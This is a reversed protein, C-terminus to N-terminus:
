RERERGKEKEGLIPRLGTVNSSPTILKAKRVRRPVLGICVGGERRSPSGAPARRHTFIHVRVYMYIYIHMHLREQMKDRAAVVM